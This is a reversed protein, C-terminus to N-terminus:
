KVVANISLYKLKTYSQRLRRELSMMTEFRAAQALPAMPPVDVNVAHVEPARM